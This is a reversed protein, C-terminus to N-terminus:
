SGELGAAAQFRAVFERWSRRQEAAYDRGRTTLTYAKRKGRPGEESWVGEILGDKELRHLIPYLTGHKFVFFGQSRAEIDLALQYGHRPGAALAALILAENCSRTLTQTTIEHPSM